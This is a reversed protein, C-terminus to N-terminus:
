SKKKRLIVVIVIIALFAIILFMGIPSQDGTKVLSVVSTTTNTKAPTGPVVTPRKTPVPTITIAPTVTPTLTPTPTPTFTPTPIREIEGEKPFVVPFYDWTYMDQTENLVYMPTMWLVPEMTIKKTDSIKVMERQRGLYMGPDLSSFKALGNSDSVSTAFPHLSQSDIIKYLKEAAELSESATMGEFDIGSSEFESTLVYAAAGNHVVLDAVKFLDITAGNVPIMKQQEEDMYTLNVTLSTTDESLDEVPLLLTNNRNKVVSDTDAESTPVDDNALDDASYVSLASGVIVTLTICIAEILRIMKIGPHKM